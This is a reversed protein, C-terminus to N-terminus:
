IDVPQTDLKQIEKKFQNIGYDVSHLINRGFKKTFKETSLQSFQQRPAPKDKFFEEFTIQEILKEDFKFAKAIKRLFDYNSIYDISAVHYIGTARNELVASIGNILDDLYTPSFIQNTIGAFKKKYKLSEYAFRAFDKKPHFHPSYIMITRIVSNDKSLSLTINEGELKSKGYVSIPNTKDTEKYSKREIEGNFVADTSIYHFPINLKSAKKAAFKVAEANLLFALKKNKQADEIKTIGALYIIQDPMVDEINNEVAKKNTLDLHWHPPGVIKFKKRLLESLRAGTMGSIGYVLIKQRSSSKKDKIISM